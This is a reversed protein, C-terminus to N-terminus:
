GDQRLLFRVPEALAARAGDTDGLRAALTAEALRAPLAEAFKLGRVAQPDVEPLPLGTGADSVAARWSQPTVDDRLRQLSGMEDPVLLLGTAQM